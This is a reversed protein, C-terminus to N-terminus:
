SLLPTTATGGFRDIFAKCLIDATVASENACAILEVPTKIGLMRAIPDVAWPLESVLEMAEHKSMYGRAMPQWLLHDVKTYQAPPVGSSEMCQIVNNCFNEIDDDSLGLRSRWINAAYRLRKRCRTENENM